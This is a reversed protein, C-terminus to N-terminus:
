GPLPDIAKGLGELDPITELLFLARRVFALMVLDDIRRELRFWQLPRSQRQQYAARTRAHEAEGRAV